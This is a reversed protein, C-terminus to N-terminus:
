MSQLETSIAHCEGSAEDVKSKILAAKMTLENIKESVFELDDMHDELDFSQDFRWIGVRKLWSFTVKASGGPFNLSIQKKQGCRTGDETPPSIPDFTILSLTESSGDLDITISM